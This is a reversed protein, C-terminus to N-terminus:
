PPTTRSPRSLCQRGVGYSSVCEPRAHLGAPPADRESPDADHREEGVREDEQEQGRRGDHDAGELPRRLAVRGVVDRLDHLGCIQPVGVLLADLDAENRRKQAAEEAEQDRVRRDAVSRRVPDARREGCEGPDGRVEAADREREREDRREARDPDDCLEQRVLEVPVRIEVAERDEALRADLEGVQVELDREHDEHDSGGDVPQALLPAFRRRVEARVAELEPAM